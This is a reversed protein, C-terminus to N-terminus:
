IVRAIKGDAVKTRLVDTGELRNAKSCVSTKQVKEVLISGM